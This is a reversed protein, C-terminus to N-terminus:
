LDMYQIHVDFNEWGGSGGDSCTFSIPYGEEDFKYSFLCTTDDQKAHNVSQASTKGYIGCYCLLFDLSIDPDYTCINNPLSRCDETLMNPMIGVKNESNTYYFNYTDYNDRVSYLNGKEWYCIEKHNEEQLNEDQYIIAQKLRGDEYELRFNDSGEFLWWDSASSCVFGEKNLNFTVNPLDEIEKEQKDTFKLHLQDKEYVLTCKWYDIDEGIGEMTIESVRNQTDYSFLVAKFVNELSYNITMSKIRKIQIDPENPNEPQEPNIPDDIVPDDSGCSSMTCLICMFLLIKKM